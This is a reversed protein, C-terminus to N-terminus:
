NTQKILFRPQVCAKNNGYKEREREEDKEEKKEERKRNRHNM